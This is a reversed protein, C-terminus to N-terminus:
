SWRQWPPQLIEYLIIADRASDATAFLTPLGTPATPPMAFRTAEEPGIAESGVASLSTSLEPLAVSLRGMQELEREFKERLHAELEQDVRSVTSGLQTTRAEIEDTRLFEEVRKGVSEAPPSEPVVQAPIVPPGAARGSPMPRRGPRPGSRSPRRAPGEEVVEAVLPPAPKAPRAAPAARAPVEEAEKARPPQEQVRRLFEAIEREIPDMPRGGAGEAGRAKAQRAARQAAEKQAELLKSIFQGIAPLFVFILLILTPIWDRGNAWLPHWVLMNM